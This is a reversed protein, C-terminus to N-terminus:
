QPQEFKSLLYKTDGIKIPNEILKDAEEFTNCYDRLEPWGPKSWFLKRFVPGSVHRDGDKWSLLVWAEM